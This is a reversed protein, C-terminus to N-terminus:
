EYRMIQLRQVPLTRELDERGIKWALNMSREKQTNKERYYNGIGVEIITNEEKYNNSVEGM